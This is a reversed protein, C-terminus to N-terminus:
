FSSYVVMAFIEWFNSDFLICWMFHVSSFKMQHSLIPLFVILIGHINKLEMVSMKRKKFMMIDESLLDWQLSLSNYPFHFHFISLGNFEGPWFVPTPLRGKELPDEYGM